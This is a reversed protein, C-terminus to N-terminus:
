YTGQRPGMQATPCANAVLCFPSAAARQYVTTWASGNQVYVEHNPMQRHSGSSLVYNGSRTVTITFAGQISNFSCFPNSAKQSFRLDVSSSTSLAMKSVSMDATSATKTAVLAGTSKRYVTTAGIGKFSTLAASRTWNITGQLKTRYPSRSAGYGRGDGGFQYGSGYACGAPPADLKAQTIFTQYQVASTTYSAAAAVATSAADQLGAVDAQRALPVRVTLGWARAEADVGEDLVPQVTYFYRRGPTIGVDRVATAATTVLVAGDRRIEYQSVGALPSWSLDVFGPAAATLARNGPDDHDALSRDVVADQGEVTMVVIDDDLESVAPTGARSAGPAGPAEIAAQLTSLTFRAAEPPPAAAATSSVLVITAATVVTFGLKHLTGGDVRSACGGM